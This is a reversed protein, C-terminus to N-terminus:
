GVVGNKDTIVCAGEPINGFKKENLYYVKGEIRQWGTLMIGKEDFYYWYNKVKEWKSASCKGKTFWKWVVKGNVTEKKWGDTQRLADLDFYGENLDVNGVVGAVKATSSKQWAFLNSGKYSCKSSYQAIWVPYEQLRGNDVKNMYWDYSCYIGPEYGGSRIAECFAICCDTRQVKTMALIDPEYEQDFFVPLLFKGEYKRLVELCAKAEEVAEAIGKAYSYWYVGIPLGVGYAETVNRDFYTDKQSVLKGYGARIIAFDVVGAVRLWQIDGQHKSVDIGTSVM